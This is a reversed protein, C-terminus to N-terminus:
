YVGSKVAGHEDPVVASIVDETDELWPPYLGVAVAVGRSGELEERL